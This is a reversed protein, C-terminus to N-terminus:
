QGLVGIEALLHAADDWQSQERAGESKLGSIDVLTCVRM